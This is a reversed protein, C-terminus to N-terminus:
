DDSEDEDSLYLLKTTAYSGIALSLLVITAVAATSIRHKRRLNKAIVSYKAKLEDESITHSPKMERRKMSSYTSFARRCEPCGKLHERIAQRSDESAVGDMYLAILDMAMDCSINM